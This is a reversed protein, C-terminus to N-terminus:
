HRRYAGVSAVLRAAVMRGSLGGGAKAYIEQQLSRHWRTVMEQELGAIVQNALVRRHTNGKSIAIRHLLSM